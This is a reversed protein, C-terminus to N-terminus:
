RRQAFSPAVIWVSVIDDHLPIYWFWGYKDETQLVMTAGEDRGTDRYAGQGIPGSPARTAPHSGLRATSLPEAADSSQGGADVVVKARRRASPGDGHQVRVGVAQEGEFLVDLVRTREFVEVGHERANDLMM